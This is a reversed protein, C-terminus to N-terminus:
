ARHRLRPWSAILWAIAASEIAVAAIVLATPSLEYLAGLVISGAFWAAGMAADLIGFAEGRRGEPVTRAIEARVVAAQLGLGVGWVVAGVWRTWGPALFLLVTGVLGCVPFGALLASGTRDSMRGFVFGALGEAAMAVAFLVPILAPAFGIKALDFAILAFHAFGATALMAFVVWLWFARPFKGPAPTTTKPKVEFRRAFALAVLTAVAPIALIAFGARYGALAVLAAVVLPGALAGVQDFFEHAGFTAGHGVREGARALLADRPPTRVGKGIREGAVLAAAAGVTGTLALCPVAIVNLAYGAYMFLWHRGSADAGRGAIWRVAYGLFEAGGGIVGVVLASAGLEYFYAGIIGRAGEYTMDAFLSVVGLAVIFRWAKRRGAIQVSAENM